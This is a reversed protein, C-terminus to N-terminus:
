KVWLTRLWALLDRTVDPTLRVSATTGNTGFAYLNTQYRKIIWVLYDGEWRSAGWLFTLGAQRREMIDLWRPRDITDPQDLTYTMSFMGNLSFTLQALNAPADIDFTLFASDDPASLMAVQHTKHQVLARTKITSLLPLNPYRDLLEAELDISGDLFEQLLWPTPLSHALAALQEATAASDGGVATELGKIVRRVLM